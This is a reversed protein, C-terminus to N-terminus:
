RHCSEPAVASDNIETASTMSLVDDGINHAGAETIPRAAIAAADSREEIDQRCGVTLQGQSTIHLAM